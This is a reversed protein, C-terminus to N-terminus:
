APPIRGTLTAANAKQLRSLHRERWVIVLNASIVVASGAFVIPLPWDNWILWGFLVAWVISSYNFVAVVAAPTNKLAISYLWQAAAGSLGVGIFLPIEVLAPRTAVFPLPIATLLAGIVFFYFAVTEPREHSGLHRLVISLVAQMLAASIALLAGLVNIEGDPNVMVGVGIFGVIVASWRWIGVAERLFLVGLVPVFLSSTFLLVATEAMPMMSYAAFTVVLSTAGLAARLGIWHPQSRIVLIDRQGFLFIAGLFPVCALVNRYFAIEFVSHEASLYKAFVNMLSFMFIAGASAVMGLAINEQNEDPPPM